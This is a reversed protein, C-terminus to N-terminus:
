ASLQVVDVHRFGKIHQERGNNCEITANLSQRDFVDLLEETNTRCSEAPLGHQKHFPFMVVNAGSGIPNWTVRDLSPHSSSWWQM